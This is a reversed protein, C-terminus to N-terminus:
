SPELMRTGGSGGSARKVFDDSAILYFLYGQDIGPKARIVWIDTSCIGSFNPRYVKRFYPRLKGFLIGGGNFISKISTVGTSKGVSNLSLTQQDIHELGIYCLEEGKGPLYGEKSLEAIKGFEFVDWGEPIPGIETEKFKTQNNITM